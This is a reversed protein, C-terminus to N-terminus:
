SETAIVTWISLNGIKVNEGAGTREMTDVTPLSEPDLIYEQPYSLLNEGPKHSQIFDITDLVSVTM